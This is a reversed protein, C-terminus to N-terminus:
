EDSEAPFFEKKVVCASGGSEAAVVKKDEKYVHDNEFWTAVFAVEELKIPVKDGVLEKNAKLFEIARSLCSQRTIRRDKLDWYEGSPKSDSVLKTNLNPAVNKELVEIKSKKSINKFDGELEYEFKVKDNVCIDKIISELKLKLFDTIGYSANDVKLHTGYLVWNKGTSTTGRKLEKVPGIEQVVGEYLVMKVM